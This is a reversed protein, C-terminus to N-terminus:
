EDDIDRSNTDRSNTDRSNIYDDNCSFEAKIEQSSVTLSNTIIIKNYIVGAPMKLEEIRATCNEPLTLVCTGNNGKIVISKDDILVLLPTIWLFEVGEGIKLDYDDKIILMKPSESIWTRRWSAYASEWSETMDMEVRFGSVLKEAKPTCDVPLPNQPSTNVGRGAPILMNHYNTGKMLGSLAEDYPGIGPDAAFIEGAFEVVFSGKDDHNHGTGATGGPILVKIAHNGIKRVSSFVGMDPLLLFQNEPITKVSNKSVDLKQMFRWGNLTQPYGGNRLLKKQFVEAWSGEPMLLAMSSLVEEELLPTSDSVPIMDYEATTSRFVACFHETAMVSEPVVDLLDRNRAKAYMQLALGASKAVVSFYNPGEPYSGDKLITKDLSEVLDRYAIDTYEKARPWYQEMVALSAVRGPSFWALQNMAFIDEDPQGYKFVNFNMFGTEEALKRLILNRGTPTIMDGAMDLIVSVDFLCLSLVFAKHEWSSGPFNCIFSDKWNGCCVLSLAYRIALRILSNDKKILGALALKPGPGILVRYEDRQRNFRRDTWFNVYEGILEEPKTDLYAEGATVLGMVPSNEDGCGGGGAGDICSQYERQLQELENNTVFLEHHPKSQFTGSEPELYSSWNGDSLQWRQLYGPLMASNRLGIWNFWGSGQERSTPIIEIRVALIKKASKLDLEVEKRIAPFNDEVCRVLGRDTEASIIVTSGEPAALSFLLTDYQNLELDFQRQMDLVPGDGNYHAWNFSVMAWYQWISLQNGEKYNIRYFNGYDYNDLVVNNRNIIEPPIPIGPNRKSEPTNITWKKLGSLQPDWFPEIIAEAENIPTIKHIM